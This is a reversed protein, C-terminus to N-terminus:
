YSHQLIKVGHLHEPFDWILNRQADGNRITLYVARSAVRGFQPVVFAFGKCPRHQLLHNIIVTADSAQEKKSAFMGNRFQRLQEEKGVLLQFCRPVASQIFQGLLVIGDQLIKVVDLDARVLLFKTTKVTRVSILPKEEYFM